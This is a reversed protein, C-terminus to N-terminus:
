LEKQVFINIFVLIMIIIIYYKIKIKKKEKSKYSDLSYEKIKISKYYKQKFTLNDKNIIKRRIQKPM